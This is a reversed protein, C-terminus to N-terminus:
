GAALTRERRTNPWIAKVGEIHAIERLQPGTAEVIFAQASSLYRSTGNGLLRALEGQVAEVIEPSNPSAEVRMPRHGLTVGTARPALTLRPPPIDLEVIVTQADRRGRRVDAELGSRLKGLSAMDDIDMISM